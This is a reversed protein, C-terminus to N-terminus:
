SNNVRSHKIGSAVPLLNSPEQKKKKCHHLDCAHKKKPGFAKRKGRGSM